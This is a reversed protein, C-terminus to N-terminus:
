DAEENDFIPASEFVFCEVIPNEAGDDRVFRQLNADWGEPVFEPSVDSM